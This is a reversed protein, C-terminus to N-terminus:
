IKILGFLLIPSGDGNPVFEIVGHCGRGTMGRQGFEPQLAPICCLCLLFGLFCKGKSTGTLIWLRLSLRENGKGLNTMLSTVISGGILEEGLSQFHKIRRMSM